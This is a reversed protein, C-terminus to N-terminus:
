RVVKAEFDGHSIPVFRVKMGARLCFPDAAGADFLKEPTRGVLSWGGPGALTYIGTRGGTIGISGSEVRVRPESRRPVNLAEDLGGIFAFGPTFGLMDIRYERGAHMEIFKDPSMGLLECIGGLDRGCEGCYCIPIEVLVTEEDDTIRVRGIASELRERAEDLSVTANDFQAVCSSIGAVCEIWQGTDRLHDALAQSTRTDKLAVAVLDDGCAFVKGAVAEANGSDVCMSEM